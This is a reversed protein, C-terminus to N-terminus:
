EIPRIVNAIGSGSCFERYLNAREVSQGYRRKVSGITSAECLTFESDILVQDAVDAAKDVITDRVTEYSACASLVLLGAFLISTIVISM